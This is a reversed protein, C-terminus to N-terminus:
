PGSPNRHKMNNTNNSNNSEEVSDHILRCTNTTHNPYYCPSSGINNTNPEETWLITPAPTDDNDWPTSPNKEKITIKMQQRITQIM